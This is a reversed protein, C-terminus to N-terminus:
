RWPSRRRSSSSSSCCRSSLTNAVAPGSGPDSFLARLQELGVCPSDRFGLFPLYDQFAIIYGLLPLYHFVVFYVFGPLVLLLM